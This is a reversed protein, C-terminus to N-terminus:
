RMTPRLNVLLSMLRSIGLMLTGGEIARHTPAPTSAAAADFSRRRRLSPTAAVADLLGRWATSPFAGPRQLSMNVIMWISWRTPSGCSGIWDIKAVEVRTSRTFCMNRRRGPTPILPPKECAHYLRSGVWWDRLRSSKRHYLRRSGRHRHGDGRHRARGRVSAPVKFISILGQTPVAGDRFSRSERVLRTPARAAADVVDLLRM